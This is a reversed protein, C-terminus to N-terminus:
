RLMWREGEPWTPLPAVWERSCVTGTPITGPSGHLQSARPNTFQASLLHGVGDELEWGVKGLSHLYTLWM